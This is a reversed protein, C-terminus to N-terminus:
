QARRRVSALVGAIATKDAVQLTPLQFAIVTVAREGIGNLSVASFEVPKGRIRATGRFTIGELGNQRHPQAAAVAVDTTEKRGAVLQTLAAKDAAPAKSFGYLEIFAGGKELGLTMSNGETSAHWGEDPLQVEAGGFRVTDAWAPVVLLALVLLMCHRICHRFM